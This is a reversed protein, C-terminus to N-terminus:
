RSAEEAVASSGFTPRNECSAVLGIAGALVVAWAVDRRAIPGQMWEGLNKRRVPKEKRPMIRPILVSAAMATAMNAPHTPLTSAPHPPGGNAGAGSWADSAVDSAARLGGVTPDSVGSAPPWSTSSSAPGSFGSEPGAVTSEATGSEPGAVTSEATGSAHKTGGDHVVPVSHRDAHLGVPHQSTNVIVQTSTEDPSQSHRALQEDLRQVVV